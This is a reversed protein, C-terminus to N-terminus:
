FTWSYVEEDSIKRLISAIGMPPMIKGIIIILAWLTMTAPNEIKYERHTMKMIDKTMLESVRQSM